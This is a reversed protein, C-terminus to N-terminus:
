DILHLKKWNGKAYRRIILAIFVFFVVILSLWAIEAPQGFIHLMVYLVPLLTWHMGVTLLMAWFTDGAGRLAGALTVMVVQILVYLCAMRLMHVAIPTADLFVQNTEQPQFIQVLYNPVFMFFLFIIFSYCLGFKIGSMATQHATEPKRAGMFRGVLSTVGVEVGILPVFSVIDWNIVITIATAVAPSVSQFIAITMTFALMNLLLELGSPYGYRILKQMVIRDFRLSTKFHFERRLPERLYAMLLIFVSILASLISGVAAGIIGLEPFGCKGFVLVYNLPVNVLLMVLSSIMVIRTRGIAAFFSSFCNRILSFLIIYILTDFYAIQPALQEPSIHMAGFVSHALPKCLLLLPYAGLSILVSQTLVVSCMEKKNSGFYQASLATSYGTLGIFFTMMVFVSLGGTLSANLHFPSIKAVFLRDTFVLITECANSVLMPLAISMIQRVGGDKYIKTQLASM